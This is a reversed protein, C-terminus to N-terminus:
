GKGPLVLAERCFPRWVFLFVYSVDNVDYLAWWVVDYAEVAEVERGEIAEVEMQYKYFRRASCHLM